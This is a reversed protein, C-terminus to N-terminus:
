VYVAEPDDNLRTDSIRHQLVTLRVVAAFLSDIGYSFMNAAYFSRNIQPRGSKRYDGDCYLRTPEPRSM